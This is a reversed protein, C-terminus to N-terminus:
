CRALAAPVSLRRLRLVPVLASLIALLVATGIAMGQVTPTLTPAPMRAFTGTLFSRPVAAVRSALAMGVVAGTICPVLAEALVLITIRWEPFGLTKLVAFEPTRDRVSQAIANGVLFLIMFLGAGGVGWTMANIPVGSNSMNQEADRFTISTTPSGSNAFYHDISAAIQAGKAPDKVAVWFSVQKRDPSRERDVYNFNGLIMMGQRDPEDDVIGLVEFNLSRSNDALTGPDVSVPLHDGKKLGLMRAHTRSVFVGTPNAFLADWQPSTLPLEPRANRSSEHVADVFVFNQPERYYGSFGTWAGAAAVGDMKAIKDTLAITLPVQRANVVIRDMRKSAVVQHVTTDMGVMLGFLTFAATVALLVLTAEAPKRWLASWILPLYKM